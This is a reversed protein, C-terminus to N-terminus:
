VSPSSWSWWLYRISEKMSSSRAGAFAVKLALKIDGARYLQVFASPWLRQLRRDLATLIARDRRGSQLVGDRAALVAFGAQYPALRRSIGDTRRECRITVRDLFVFPGALAARITFDFDNAAKFRERGMAAALAIQRYTMLNMSATFCGNCLLALLPDSVIGEEIRPGKEVVFPNGDMGAVCAFSLVAEHNRRLANWLSSLHFPEAVDDSDLFAVFEGRAEQIGHLRAAAAGRNEQRVVHVRPDIGDVMEATGDTSGDDVVVIEFRGSFDQALLSKVARRIVDRRNFVPVVVSLALAPEPM